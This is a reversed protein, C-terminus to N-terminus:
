NEIKITIVRHRRTSHYMADQKDLQLIPCDKEVLRQGHKKPRGTLREGHAKNQTCRWETMRMMKCFTDLLTDSCQLSGVVRVVASLFWESPPKIIAMSYKQCIGIRKPVGAQRILTMKHIEGLIPQWPLTGQPIPFLPGSQDDIIM